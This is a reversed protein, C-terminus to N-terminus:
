TEVRRMPRAVAFTGRLAPRAGAKPTDDPRNRRLRENQSVVDLPRSTRVRRSTRSAEDECTPREHCRCTHATRPVVLGVPGRTPRVHPTFAALLSPVCSASYTAHRKLCGPTSLPAGHAAESSAAPAGMPIRRRVRTRAGAPSKGDEDPAHVDCLLKELRPFEVGLRRESEWPNSRFSDSNPRHSIPRM